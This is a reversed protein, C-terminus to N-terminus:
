HFLASEGTDALMDGFVLFEALCRQSHAPIGNDAYDAGIFKETEQALPPGVMYEIHIHLVFGIQHIPLLQVGYDSWERHGIERSPCHTERPKPSTNFCCRQNLYQGIDALNPHRSLYAIGATRALLIKSDPIDRCPRPSVGLEM